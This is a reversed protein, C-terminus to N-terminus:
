LSVLGDWRLILVLPNETSGYGAQPFFVKNEESDISGPPLSTLREFVEAQKTDFVLDYPTLKDEGTQRDNQKTAMFYRVAHLTLAMRESLALETPFVSLDVMIPAEEEIGPLSLPAGKAAAHVLSSLFADTQEEPVGPIDRFMQHCLVLADGEELKFHKPGVSGRMAVLFESMLGLPPLDEWKVLATSGDARLVPMAEAGRGLGWVDGTDTDLVIMALVVFRGLLKMNDIRGNLAAAINTLAEAPQGFDAGDILSEMYGRAFSGLAAAAPGIGAPEGMAACVRTPNVNRCIFFDGGSYKNISTYANGSASADSFQGTYRYNDGNFPDTETDPDVSLLIRMAIDRCIQEQRRCRELADVMGTDAAKSNKKFIGM